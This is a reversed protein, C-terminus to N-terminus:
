HVYGFCYFRHMVNWSRKQCSRSCYFVSMCWKCAKFLRDTPQSSISKGFAGCWECKRSGRLYEQARYEKRISLVTERDMGPREYPCHIMDVGDQTTLISRMFKNIKRQMHKVDFYQVNYYGNTTRDERFPFNPASTFSHLAEHFEGSTIRLNHMKNLKDVFGKNGETNELPYGKAGGLVRVPNKGKRRPLIEKLIIKHWFIDGLDYVYRLSKVDFDLVDCLYVRESDVVISGLKYFPSGPFGVHGADPSHSSFRGYSIQKQKRKQKLFIYSHFNRKWSFLPTLVKDHLAALTMTAPVRVKRWILPRIGELHISLIYDSQLLTNNKAIFLFHMTKLRSLEVEMTVEHQEERERQGTFDDLRSAIKQFNDFTRNSKKSFEFDSDNAFSDSAYEFTEEFPIIHHNMLSIKRQEWLEDGEESSSDSVIVSSWKSYDIRSAM